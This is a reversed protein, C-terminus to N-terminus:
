RGDAKLFVVRVTKVVVPIPGLVPVNGRKNESLNPPHYLFVMMIGSSNTPFIYWFNYSLAGPIM